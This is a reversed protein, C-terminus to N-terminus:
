FHPSMNGKGVMGRLLRSGAREALDSDATSGESDADPIQEKATYYRLPCFCNDSQIDILLFCKIISKDM